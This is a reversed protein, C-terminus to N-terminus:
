DFDTHRRTTDFFRGVQSWFWESVRHSWPRKTWNDYTIEHSAAFDEELMARVENAFEPDAVEQNAELNRPLEWRDFNSSGISCWDDCLVVKTHLFQPQYEFIRVGAQLLRSYHRHGFHWVSPHDSIEGPLLVRVDVNQRAKKRLMRRIKWPPNFYATVFWITERALLGHRLVSRNITNTRMPRSFIVRGHMQHHEESTDCHPLRLHGPTSYNWVGEFLRTWDNLVPGKIEIMTDRWNDGPNNAPDNEATVGASGTLAVKGDVLILKRHDRFFYRRLNSWRLPNYYALHINSHRLRNRDRINLGLTGFDDLIMYIIIGREAASLLADILSSAVPSSEMLYMEFLIYNKAENITDIMVPVFQDANALLRFRNEGRWPFRKFPSRRHVIHEVAM